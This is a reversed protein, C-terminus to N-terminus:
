PVAAVDWGFSLFHEDWDGIEQMDEWELKMNLAAANHVIRDPRASKPLVVFGRQVAWRVLVQAPSMDRRAALALLRPDGLKKGKTLPSHAACTIKHQACFAVVDERQTFPSLEVQNVAPICDSSDLLEQLHHVGYNSVGISKALGQRQLDVLCSWQRTRRAKDTPKHILYLDVYDLRLRMLSAKLAESPDREEKPDPTFKTTVWVASRQLKSESLFQELAAGVDAENRYLEATDIHRYGARLACLVAAYTAAGQAIKYVGLGLQPMQRGDNLTVTTAIDAVEKKDHVPHHHSPAPGARSAPVRYVSQISAVDDPMDSRRAKNRSCLRNLETSLQSPVQEAFVATCITEHGGDALLWEIMKIAGEKGFRNHTEGLKLATPARGVDLLRLPAKCLVALHSIGKLGIGNSALSLTQLNGGGAPELLARIGDDQLRNCDLYLDIVKSSDGIAKGLHSAGLETIGNAGLYLRELSAHSAIGQCLEELGDDGLMTNNLDITRLLTNSHLAQALHAAGTSGIPNRKLWLNRVRKSSGVAAALKAMGQTRIANCGVFVTELPDRDNIMDALAEAGDDGLGDMGLLLHKVPGDAPIAEAVAKCHLPGLAQKCLDLRGDSCITGRPFALDKEPTSTATRLWELLPELEETPCPTVCGVHVIPCLPRPAEPVAEVLQKGAQFHGPADLTHLPYVASAPRPPQARPRTTINGDADRVAVQSRIMTKVATANRHDKSSYVRGATVQGLLSCWDSCESEQKSSNVPTLDAGDWGSMVLSARTTESSADEQHTAKSKANLVHESRQKLQTLVDAPPAKGTLPRKTEITRWSLSPQEHSVIKTRLIEVSSADLADLFTALASLRHCHADEASSSDEVLQGVEDLLSQMLPVFSVDNFVGVARSLLPSSEGRVSVFLRDLYQFVRRMEYAFCTFSNWADQLVATAPCDTDLMTSMVQRLFHRLAAEYYEMLQQPEEEDSCEMVSSYAKMFAENGPRKWSVRRSSPMSSILSTQLPKRWVQEVVVLCPEVRSGAWRALCFEESNSEKEDKCESIGDTPAM